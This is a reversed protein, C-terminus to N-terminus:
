KSERWSHAPAYGLMRRAKDISLLTENGCVARKFPVGAFYKAALEASPTPFVTDQNAIVFVEAGKLDSRLSLRVAQAGDRADRPRRTLQRPLDPRVPAGLWARAEM